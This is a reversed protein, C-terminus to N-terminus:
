TATVAKGIRDLLRGIRAPSNALDAKDAFSLARLHTSPKSHDTPVNAIKDVVERSPGDAVEGFITHKGQLHTPTSVTIFFPSGNTGRAGRKGAHAM